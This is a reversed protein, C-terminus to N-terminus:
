RPRLTWQGFRRRTLRARSLEGTGPAGAHAPATEASRQYAAGARSEQAAGRRRQTGAYENEQNQQAGYDAPHHNANEGFDAGRNQRQATPGGLRTGRGTPRQEPAQPKALRAIAAPPTVSQLAPPPVACPSLPDCDAKLPPAARLAPEVVAIGQTAAEPPIIISPPKPDSLVPKTSSNSIQAQAPLGATLAVALFVLIRYDAM